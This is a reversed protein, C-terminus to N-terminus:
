FFTRTKAWNYVHQRSINAAKASAAIDQTSIYEVLFACQAGSLRWSLQKKIGNAKLTERAASKTKRKKKNPPAEATITEKLGFTRMVVDTNSAVAAMGKLYQTTYEEASTSPTEGM